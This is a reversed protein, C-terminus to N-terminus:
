GYPHGNKLGLRGFAQYGEAGLMLVPRKLAGLDGLLARPARVVILIDVGKVADTMAASDSLVNVAAHHSRLLSVIGKVRDDDPSGTVVGVKLAEQDAPVTTQGGALPSSMVAAVAITFFRTAGM